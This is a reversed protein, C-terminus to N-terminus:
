IFFLILFVNEINNYMEKIEPELLLLLSLKPHNKKLLIEQIKSDTICFWLSVRLNWMPWM